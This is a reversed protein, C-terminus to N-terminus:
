SALPLLILDLGCALPLLILDLGCTSAQHQGRVGLCVLAAASSGRLRIPGCGARECENCPSARAATMPAPNIVDVDVFSEYPPAAEDDAGGARQEVGRGGGEIGGNGFTAAASVHANADHAAAVVWCSVLGVLMVVILADLPALQAAWLLLADIPTSPLPARGLPSAPRPPVPREQGWESSQAMEGGDRGM